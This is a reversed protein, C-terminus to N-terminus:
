LYIGTTVCLAIWFFVIFAIAGIDTSFHTWVNYTLSSAVIGWVFGLLHDVKM